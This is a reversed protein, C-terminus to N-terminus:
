LRDGRLAPAAEDTELDLEESRSNALLALLGLQVGFLVTFRQDVGTFSATTDLVILAIIACM